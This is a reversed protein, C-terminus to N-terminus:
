SAALKDAAVGDVAKEVAGDLNSRRQREECHCAAIRPDTAGTRRWTMALSRFAIEIDLLGRIGAAADREADPSWV